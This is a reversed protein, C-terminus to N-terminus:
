EDNRQDHCPSSGWLDFFAQHIEKDLSKDSKTEKLTEAKYGSFFYEIRVESEKMNLTFFVRWSKLACEFGQGKKKIRNITSPIPHHKLKEEFKEKLKLGFKQHLYTDQKIALESWTISFLKDQPLEELWGQKALPYSDTYPLYPKLDLIPTGNLLDHSRINLERGKISLLEVCSLGIPNPRHPSRTSFVGRKKNSRPPKVKPKWQPNRHFWFLVWLRDFGSLDELAQEFDLGPLLVIMAQNSVLGSQRPVEYREEEECYVHGIIQFNVSDM